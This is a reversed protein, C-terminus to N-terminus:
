LCQPVGAVLVTTKHERVIQQSDTIHRWLGRRFSIVTIGLEDTLYDSLLVENIDPNVVANCKIERMEKVDALKVKVAARVKPLTTEGAATEYDELDFDWTPWVGLTKALTAPLAVDPEDSEFGSSVLASTEVQVGEMSELKLKM